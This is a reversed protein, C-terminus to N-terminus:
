YDVWFVVGSFILALSGIYAGIIAINLDNLVPVFQDFDDYIGALAGVICLIVSSLLAFKNEFEKSIYEKYKKFKKFQELM